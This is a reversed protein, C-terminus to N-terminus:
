DRMRTVQPPCVYNLDESVHYGNLSEVVVIAEDSFSWRVIVNLSRFLFSVVDPHAIEFSPERVLIRLDGFTFLRKRLMGPEYVSM